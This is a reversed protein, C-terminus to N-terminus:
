GLGFERSSTCHAPHLCVPLLCLFALLSSISLFPYSLLALDFTGKDGYDEQGANGPNQAPQQIGTGTGTSSNSSKSLMEKGQKILHDM